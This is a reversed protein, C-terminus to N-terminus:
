FLRVSVSKQLQRILELHGGIIYQLSIYKMNLDFNIVTLLPWTGKYLLDTNHYLQPEHWFFVTNINIPIHENDYYGYICYLKHLVLTKSM